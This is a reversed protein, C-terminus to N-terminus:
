GQSLRRSSSGRLSTQYQLSRDHDYSSLFINNVYHHVKVDMHNSFFYLSPPPSPTFARSPCKVPTFNAMQLNMLIFVYRLLIPCKEEIIQFNFSSIGLKALNCNQFSSSVYLCRNILCLPM